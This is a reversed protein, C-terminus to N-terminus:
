IKENWCLLGNKEEKKTRKENNKKRMKETFLSFDTLISEIELILPLLQLLKDGFSDLDDGIDEPIEVKDDFDTYNHPLKTKLNVPKFGNQLDSWINVNMSELAKYAKMMNEEKHKLKSKKRQETKKKKNKDNKNQNNQILKTKIKKKMPSQGNHMLKYAIHQKNRNGNKTGRARLELVLEDKKWDKLNKEFKLKKYKNKKHYSLLKNILTQKAIRGNIDIDRNFCLSKLETVTLKSLTGQDM